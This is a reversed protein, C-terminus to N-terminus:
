YENQQTAGNSNTIVDVGIPRAYRRDNPELTQTQVQTGVSGNEGVEYFQRTLIIPDTLPDNNLRKLDMWRRTFPFERRREDIILEVTAKDNAPVSLPTYNEPTFRNMRVMEVDAMAGSLDGRRAKAEARILYMEPVSEGNVAQGIYINVYGYWPNVTAQNRIFYDKVMFRMRLDNTDYLDLLEQSPSTNWGDNILTNFIYRDKFVELAVPSYPSVNVTSPYVLGNGATITSIATAYNVMESYLSLAENAHQEAKDYDGMYLYFKAAFAEIVPLTGRNPIIDEIPNELAQELDSEIQDFTEKLSARSQSEGYNTETRLVVGLEDANSASPYLAYILALDFLNSARRYHAETKVALKLQEDGTVKNESILNIILNARWITEYYAAWTEDGNQSISTSWTYQELTFPSWSNGIEDFLDVPIGTNDTCFSNVYEDTLYTSSNLIYELQEATEVEVRSNVSPEKDLFDDSCSVIFGILFLALIKKM